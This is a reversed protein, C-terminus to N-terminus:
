AGSHKRAICDLTVEKTEDPALDRWYLILERGRAEWLDFREAKELDELVATPIELGAPLGVVALTM